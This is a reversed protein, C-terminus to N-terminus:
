QQMVYTFLYDPANTQRFELLKFDNFDIGSLLYLHGDYRDVFQYEAHQNNDIGVDLTFYINGQGKCQQNNIVDFSTATVNYITLDSSVGVDINRIYTNAPGTISIHQPFNCDPTNAALVNTGASFIIMAVALRAHINKMEIEQKHM